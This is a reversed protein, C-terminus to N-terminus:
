LLHRCKDASCVSIALFTGVKLLFIAGSLIRFYTRVPAHKLYDNPLLGEVVTRLISRSSEAVEQIYGENGRYHEMLVGFPVVGNSANGADISSQNQTDDNTINTWREVVAQLAFSNLYIGSGTLLHFRFYCM